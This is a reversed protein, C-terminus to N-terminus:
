CGATLNTQACGCSVPQRRFSTKGGAAVKRQSGFFPPFSLCCLSPSKVFGGRRSFGGETALLRTVDPNKLPRPAIPTTSSNGRRRLRKRKTRAPTPQVMGLGKAKAFPKPSGGPRPGTGTRTTPPSKRPPCLHGRSTSRTKVATGCGCCRGPVMGSATTQQRLSVARFCNRRVM